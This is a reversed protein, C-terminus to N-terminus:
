ANADLGLPCLLNFPATAVEGRSSFQKAIQWWSRFVDGAVIGRVGGDDKQLATM